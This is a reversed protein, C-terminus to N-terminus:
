DDKWHSDRFSVGTEDLLTLRAARSVVLDVPLGADLLGRLVAAAYPTGSAGTVGVIWPARAGTQIKSALGGLSPQQRGLDGPRVGAVRERGCGSGRERSCGSGSSLISWRSCSSPSASSGTPPSSPGTSGPCTTRSSSRTSTGS